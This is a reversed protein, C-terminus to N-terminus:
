VTDNMFYIDVKFLYVKCKGVFVTHGENIDWWEGHGSVASHCVPVGTILLAASSGDTKANVSLTGVLAKEKNFTSAFIM